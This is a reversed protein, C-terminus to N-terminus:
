TSKLKSLISGFMKVIEQIESTLLNRKEADGIGLANIIKLWYETEVAERMVLRIRAVFERYTSYQAEEYNAGISTASKSLQLRLVDYERKQPLSSLFQFCSVSFHFLRKRLDGEYKARWEKVSGV